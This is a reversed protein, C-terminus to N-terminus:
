PSWTKYLIRAIDNSFVFVVLLLIIYLGVKQAAMMARESVPKRRIAEITLFVMHGGDLIPIPFLNFVGLNISILAMFFIFNRIGISAQQEAMQVIFIPGGLDSEIKGQIMKVLGVMTIDIIDWTRKFALYVSKFPNLTVIESEGHPTIGILGIEIKEGFINKDINKEPVISIHKTSNGRKLTIMLKKDSSQRIIETMEEWYKINIDDIAIIKDGSKIDAKYAPSNDKVKGVTAMLKPIGYMYFIAFILTAFLINFLSGAVVVLARKYVPQFFFATAKESEDIEETMDEGSMKVFGGLPISALIYETDGYKKSIIKPGFGISFKLVKIGMFKAFLFHGLEHVFILVALLVIASLFSM